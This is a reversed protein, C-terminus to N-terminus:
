VKELLKIISGHDRMLIKTQFHLNVKAMKKDKYFNAKM